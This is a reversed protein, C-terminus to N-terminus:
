GLTLPDALDYFVIGQPLKPFFYTTKPPLLQGAQALALVTALPTPRLLVALVARGSQVAAVAESTDPTYTVVREITAADLACVHRLLLRDVVVADPESDAGTPLEVVLLEQRHLVLVHPRRSRALDGALQVVGDLPGPALSDVAAHRALHARLTDWDCPLWSLVRHIPRVVLAPDAADVVHVPVWGRPDVSRGGVRAREALRQAAAYRHHGDAIVLPRSTVLAALEHARAGSVAWLRHEDGNVTVSWLPPETRVIAELVQRLAGDGAWIAYVAGAHAQVAELQRLRREVLEPTTGEHPLLQAGALPDLAAALFVGLRESPTGDLRFRHAYVYCAPERERLLVGESRWTRYQQAAQTFGRGDPDPIELHLCHYPHRAALAAAQAADPVDDPPGLVAALNGIREIDYRVARFPRLPLTGAATADPARDPWPIATM